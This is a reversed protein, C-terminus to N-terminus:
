EEPHLVDSPPHLAFDIDSSINSGDNRPAEEVEEKEEAGFPRLNPAPAIGRDIGDFGVEPRYPRISKAEQAQYALEKEMMQIRQQYSLSPEATAELKPLMFVEVRRERDIFHSVGHKSLSALLGDIYELEDKTDETMM